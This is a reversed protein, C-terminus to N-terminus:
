LYGSFDQKGPLIRKEGDLRAWIRIVAFARLARLFYLVVAHLGEPDFRATRMFNRNRTKKAGQAEERNMNKSAGRVSGVAFVRIFNFSFAL